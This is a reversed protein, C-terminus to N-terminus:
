TARVSAASDGCAETRILGARDAEKVPRAQDAGRQPQSPLQARGCGPRELEGDATVGPRDREVGLAAEVLEQGLPKGGPANAHPEHEGGFGPVRGHVPPHRPPDGRRSEAEAGVSTGDAEQLPAQFAQAVDKAAAGVPAERQSM